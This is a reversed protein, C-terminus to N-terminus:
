HSAATEPVYPHEMARWIRAIFKTGNTVRGTEFGNCPMTPAPTTPALMAETLEVNKLPIEFNTGNVVCKLVACVVRDTKTTTLSVSFQQRRNSAGSRTLM